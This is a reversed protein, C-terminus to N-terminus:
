KADFVEQARALTACYHGHHFGGDSENFTHVVFPTQASHWERLVTVRFSDKRKAALVAHSNGARDTVTVGKRATLEAAMALGTETARWQPFDALWQAIESASLHALKPSTAPATATANKM